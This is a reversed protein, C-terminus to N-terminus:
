LTWNWGVKEFLLWGCQDGPHSLSTQVGSTKTGSTPKRGVLEDQFTENADVDRKKSIRRIGPYLGFLTVNIIELVVHLVPCHIQSVDLIAVPPLGNRGHERMTANHM